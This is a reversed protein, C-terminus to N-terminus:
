EFGDETKSMKRNIEKPDKEQKSQKQRVHGFPEM